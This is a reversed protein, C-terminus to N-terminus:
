EGLWETWDQNDLEGLPKAWLFTKGKHFQIHLEFKHGSECCMRIITRSGRGQDSPRSQSYEVKRSIRGYHCYDDNCSPCEIADEYNETSLKM